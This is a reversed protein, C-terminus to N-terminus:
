CSVDIQRGWTTSEERGAHLVVLPCWDASSIRQLVIGRVVVTRWHQVAHSVPVRAFVLGSVNEQEADGGLLGWGMRWM